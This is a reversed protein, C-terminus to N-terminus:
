RFQVLLWRGPTGNEFNGVLNGLGQGDRIGMLQRMQVQARVVDHKIGPFLILSHDKASRTTEHVIAKRLQGRFFPPTLVSDM